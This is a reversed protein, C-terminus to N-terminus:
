PATTADDLAKLVIRSIADQDEDSLGLFPRAPINGKTAGFQHTAAYVSPSGITVEDATARYAINGRLFGRWTLV